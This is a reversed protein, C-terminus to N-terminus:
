SEFGEEHLGVAVSRSIERVNQWEPHGEMVFLRGLGLNM